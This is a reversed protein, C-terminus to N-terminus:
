LKLQAPSDGVHSYSETVKLSTIMEDKIGTLVSWCFIFCCALVGVDRMTIAQVAVFRM